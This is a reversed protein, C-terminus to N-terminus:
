LHVEGVLEQALLEVDEALEHVVLVDLRPQDLVDAEEPLGLVLGILLYM